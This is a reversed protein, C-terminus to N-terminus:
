GQGQRALVARDLGEQSTAFIWEHAIRAIFDNYQKAVHKKVREHSDSTAKGQFTIRLARRPSLPYYLDFKESRPDFGPGAHLNYLPQDCTIFDVDGPAELLCVSHQSRRSAFAWGFNVAFQHRFAALTPNMGNAKILDVVPHEIIKPTRLYQLGLFYGFHQLEEPSQSASIPGLDGGILADLFRVSPGEVAQSFYSEEFNNIEIEYARAREASLEGRSQEERRRVFTDDFFAHWDRQLRQVEPEAISMMRRLFVVDADSMEALGYFYRRNAVNTPNTAFRKGNPIHWSLINGNNTWARLYRAWVYHQRVTNQM